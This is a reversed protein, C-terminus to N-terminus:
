EGKAKTKKPMVSIRHSPVDLGRSVAEIIWSKVQINEAGKAVIAVGRIKPKKTELVIPVEKEGERIIVLQEENSQDEVKRKGGERDTEDTTQTKSTTNKELVKQETADVNVLVTADEVGVIDDLIEKIQTEYAREYDAIVNNGGQQEKGFAAVDEENKASAM